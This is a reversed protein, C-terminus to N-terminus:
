PKAGFFVYVAEYSVETEKGADDRSASRPPLGGRTGIRQIYKVKSMRGEGTPETAELLLWPIAGKVEASKKRTGRVKSGDDAEWTPGAYHTGVQQGKDDVLRARPGKLVWEYRGPQSPSEKCQYIQVGKARVQFLVALGEPPRVSEKPDPKAGPLGSVVAAMALLVIGQLKTTVKM